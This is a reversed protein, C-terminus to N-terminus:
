EDPSADPDPRANSPEEIKVKSNENTMTIYHAPCLSTVAKLLKLGRSRQGEAFSMAAHSGDGVGFLQDFVHCEALDLWVFRRGDPSSMLTRIVLNYTVDDRKSKSTKRDIAAPDTAFETM